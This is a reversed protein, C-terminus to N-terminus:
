SPADALFTHVVDRQWGHVTESHVGTFGNVRLRNRLASAGDFETVGLDTWEIRAGRPQRARLVLCPVLWPAVLLTFLALGVGVGLGATALGETALM